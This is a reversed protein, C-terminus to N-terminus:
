KAVSIAPGNSQVGNVTISLPYNGPAIQPVKINAQYLGVFGPTLGLYSVQAQQGGITISYPSTVPSAGNPSPGGTMWAGSANVSGGGTLYAVVIDGPHAPSSPSNLSQDQNQVIAQNSGYTFIGPAASLANLAASNSRQGANQVSITVPTGVPTELPVQANIQSPSVYDLPAPQGNILLQTSGLTTPLPLSSASATQQSLGKGFVSFLSGPALRRPAFSAGNVVAQQPAVFQPVAQGAVTFTPDTRLFLITAGDDAVGALYNLTNGRQDTLRAAVACSASVSYTGTGIASSIAGGLNVTSRATLNGNGDASVFGDDSFLSNGSSGVLLYGYSGSLSANSCSGSDASQRHVTGTFVGNPTSFAILANGGGGVVQLAAQFPSQSDVSITFIGTCSSQITYTGSLTHSSLVGNIVDEAVGSFSGNGDTVIRALEAGPAAASVFAGSLLWFYPGNFSSNSCTGGGIEPQACLASAGLLLVLICDVGIRAM